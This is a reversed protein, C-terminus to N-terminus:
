RMWLAVCTLWAGISLALVSLVIEFFGFHGRSVFALRMVLVVLLLDAIMMSGQILTRRRAVAARNEADRKELAEAAGEEDLKGNGGRLLAAMGPTVQPTESSNEPRGSGSQEEMLSKLGRGLASKAMSPKEGCLIEGLGVRFM